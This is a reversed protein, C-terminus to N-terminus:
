VEVTTLTAGNSLVIVPYRDEAVIKAIQKQVSDKIMMEQSSSMIHPISVVTLTKKAM